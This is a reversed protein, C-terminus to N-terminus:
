NGRINSFTSFHLIRLVIMIAIMRGSFFDAKVNLFIGLLIELPLSLCFLAKVDPTEFVRGAPQMLM